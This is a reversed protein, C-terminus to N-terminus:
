RALPRGRRLWLLLGTVCLAAPVVGGLFVLLRGIEGFAQGSHLPYQWAFFADGPGEGVDHRRGVIRGDAMDVYTWLRGQYDVDRPDFTRIAYVGKAPMPRLSDIEDAPAVRAMAQEISLRPTTVPRDPFGFDLRESIPSLTRVAERSLEPWALTVGTLALVFTVPFMWVGPARHWDYLWRLSGTRGRVWFAERWLALRPIALVLSLGHDILWLLSVFGFVATVWPAVLLDVHLGYFLDPLHHRHLSLRGSERWGVVEGTQPHAFVQVGARRGEITASGIMWITEGSRDPLDIHRPQFDSLAAQAGAVAATVPEPSTRGSAEAATRLDPNLAQDLEEYYTIASGTVALLFLWLGAILGFWRHWLRLARRGRIM